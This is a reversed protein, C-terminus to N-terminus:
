KGLVKGITQSHVVKRKKSRSTPYTHYVLGDDMMRLILYVKVPCRKPVGARFQQLAVKVKLRTSLPFVLIKKIFSIEAM